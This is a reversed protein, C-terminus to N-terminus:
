NSWKAYLVIEGSLSSDIVTIQQTFNEDLYWGLFTSNEKTPDYLNYGTITTDVSYNAYKTINKDNNLGGNLHYIIKNNEDKLSKTNESVIFIFKYITTKGTGTSSPSKLKINIEVISDFATRFLHSILVRQRNPIFQNPSELTVKLIDSSSKKRTLINIQRKVM